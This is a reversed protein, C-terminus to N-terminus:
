HLWPELIVTICSWVLLEPDPSNKPDAGDELSGKHSRRPRPRAAEVHCLGQGGPRRLELIIKLYLWVGQLRLCLTPLELSLSSREEEEKYPRGELYWQGQLQQVGSQSVTPSDPEGGGKDRSFHGYGLTWCSLGM